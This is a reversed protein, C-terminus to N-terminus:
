KVDVNLRDGTAVEVIALAEAQGGCHHALDTRQLENRCPLPIGKVLVITGRYGCEIIMCNHHWRKFAFFQKEFSKRPQLLHMQDRAWLCDCGPFEIVRKRSSRPFENKWPLFDDCGFVPLTCNFRHFSVKLTDLTLRLIEFKWLNNDYLLSFNLSEFKGVPSHIKSRLHRNISVANSIPCQINSERKRFAM